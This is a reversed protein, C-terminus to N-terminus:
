SHAPRQPATPAGDFRGDILVLTRDARAAVVGDHSVVIVSMARESRAKALLDLAQGAAVSDLRGTPEDALLLRPRNALARALAVRQREGGSLQSPLHDARAAMGMEALLERARSRRAVRGVGTAIMAAEVNAQASLVPVLLDHQFVFAVVHRHYETQNRRTSVAEGDVRIEGRDPRDLGGILSLLTSKGSGSPGAISVFEGPAVHLSLDRLVAVREGFSKTIREVLVEAGIDGAPATM